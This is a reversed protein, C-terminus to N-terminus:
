TRNPNKAVLPVGETSKIFNAVKNNSDVLSTGPDYWVKGVKKIVTVKTGITLENALTVGATTEDVSFDAVFTIDGETSEWHNEVNHVTYPHKKLRQNGVFFTWNTRDTTFNTSSTHASVCKFTSSGYLVIEDVSYDTLESWNTIKYGGVFVEIDAPVTSVVNHTIKDKIPYMKPVYQLPVVNSTGDYVHTDIIFDDNYPITESIGIDIIMEGVTHVAPTGTGLTGRRLQGLVNGTITFFEIREGGVYIVGPLNKQKNGVNLVSSDTVTITSDYFNLDLALSTKRTNSLRKYHDRNLMDKFQMYGITQRVVNKTFTIVSFIDNETPTAALKISDKNATLYYDISHTLLNGNKIVWVYDDSLVDRGLDLSGGLIKNYEFYEVTDQTLSITPNIEVESRQIDLIDHNYYSILEIVEGDAPTTVFEIVNSAPVFYEATTIITIVLTAGDSYVSQNLRIAGALLDVTYDLMLRLKTGAVYVNFDDINFVATQFKHAPIVYTLENNSITYYTSNPGTFIHQDSKVIINAELPLADGINNTLTFSNTLGDGVITESAALSYSSDASSSILYNIIAGVAPASGFKIGVRDTAEYTEDTKFLIYSQTQGSVIVLSSADDVWPSRTIFEIDTGNGVFYDLDLIDQGNFGFSSVTVISGQTPITTLSVTKTDYNITFDLSNALITGDVTVTVAYQTNPYQGINFTDTTADGIYNNTVLRASGSASRHFVKVAVADTIQGPVVEEPAPSTTPTVFGDGDVLIDDAALGTASSYALNGGTLATDYDLSSPTISGDSTSKRFVVEDGTNIDLSPTNGLNPLTITDIIGDGVFTDMVATPPAVLRGNPQVTVGDYVSFYPDDIRVGNVYINIEQGAAPTYPLDYTYTSDGVTVIYDDFTPDFGDWVDTFWPLDDWGASSKFNLGVVNVGGYDVGTMLQSLDKGLQGSIPDYYYQIRDAASLYNFDKVYNIVLIEGAAPASTFTLLGSYSTHGRTTTAKSSVSFTDRLAEQGNIDTSNAKIVVKTKGTKLDPSWKLPFQLRSGTGVFEETVDLSTIYYKSSIRDFKIKVLASRVLDNKIFAVARAAVGTTSLGGNIEVTPASFYGTGSSVIEIKTVKGNSIYSKATAQSTNPGTIIIEPNSIYGSGGDVLVIESVYFSANDLWHKWPYTLLENDNIVIENTEGVTTVVPISKFGDAVPLLDFDTIMSQTNDVNSYSSVYERIKTRYPKVEAIYSEFDELNDNNYTVKQKLDGVHHMAKVFSTKFAWDIFTQESLAYRVSSFFLQLYTTRLEDILVKDKVATLIIRLETSGSNDFVNADYLPGDFGLNTSVFQYFKNSIQITGKERGIVKYSLTYDVSSVNAIKELLMWGASGVNKVKVTNGVDASLSYLQNTGDVSHDIKTFLNYGTAYWDAYNWFETVNYSQSKTRTWNSAVTNFAYISWRGLAQTDSNVLVSLARISLSTSSTYGEGSENVTVSRIGGNTDLVAKLVAGRGSGTVKIYPATTYGSGATNVVVETIRGDIIVPTLIPAIFSGTNVLRLEADTDIVLDYSGSILTPAAEFKEFDTLDTSDVILESILASNLREIYQKLAEVRNVFMGQRPRSQVGYKLKPPLNIDPVQRNSSDSGVLSDIWKSEITSPISTNPHESILKWDTHINLDDQDVLWYQAALVIDSNVLLNQVNVLSFSNTGTFEVFKHGQSKPDAILLAVDYASILRDSVNPVTTKNKVWFYYTNKFTKAVNDYRKKVSYNANGYLSTGSIGSTLGAETDALKDWEVPTYKSEVWEYVDISSTEYLTNWTSNRYVVNGTYSDLFKARKLNWWLTGVQQGLWAMGDDVNVTSTGISYTAPDYYTKYKIEQEAIGAIKGQMPDIIDLYTVLENTKKNYLFLKKIKTIDVKGIESQLISWSYRNRPRAYTHVLGSKVERDSALPASAVITNNTADFSYGYKENLSNDVALSEGYIFASDYVDYIDIRGADNNFDSIRTSGNDFTTKTTATSSPDNVYKLGINNTPDLVELQEATYLQESYSDFTYVTKSDGLASFVALTKGGNILKVKAGFKESTEPNRNKVVEQRQIYGTSDVDFIRVVGQDIKTDNALISGIALISGDPTISISEGFREPEDTWETALLTQDLEYLSTTYNYIYVAGVGLDATPATVVLTSGDETMDIDYAFNDGDVTFTEVEGELTWSGMNSFVLIRGQDIGYGSQVVAMRYGVSLKAIKIKSGFNQNNVGLADLIITIFQYEGNSNLKYMAVAGTGNNRDPAGIALWVSDPSFAMAKGFGTFPRYASPIVITQIKVWGTTGISKNFIEVEDNNSSVALTNALVDIVITRGFLLNETQIAASLTKRTFVPSNQWVTHNGAGDVGSWLLENTKLTRPLSTANDISDIRQSTFKYVLIQSSDAFPNEWGAISASINIMNLDVSTIVHFGTIVGANVIGIVDGASVSPISECDLSIISNVYEVSRVTFDALTYRYVNWSAGEFATWVYDGEELETIDKSLIDSLEDVNVTIQDYRVHGPTRLYPKYSKLEPWPNNNYGAPKLYLESPTQRIVFDVLTPDNTTTFEFAQPNTKFLSENLSIEIEDFADSGGYQGVRVAWEENFDISEQGEASLVDFLKNLSNASGKEPIMGQYFKYESVDNKIINELYQRKQYGVLHQAIRQQESDFNDSELDYFDTFQEAKYDWNPLLASTPKKSLRVWNNSNFVEVGPLFSNASYYFEKYKVIDGLNYDTWPQWDSIIAQDFIFGPIDFGGYWGVTRYGSVKIRDQKYGAELNYITDNFQTTNDIIVVHEKQVLYFGAGYIGVGTVRPSFSFENDERTYNLFNQDFKSGDSKLIEYENFQDRVDDIVAYNLKMSLGLASPSLAIISAGDQSLSALKNYLEPSFTNTTSHDIKSSFYDGNYKVIVGTKYIKNPLWDVFKDEGTSWNQTTWFMFEKVSTEWSVASRLNTNYDDFVFGQDKLFEGYGQLFDVVEQVSEYVTGYNVVTPTRDWQKRLSADRGGIIPLKALKQFLSADFNDQSTHNSAARYYANNYRVINGVVYQQGVTWEIYSESIGGVNIVVGTQTWPYYYFFPNNQNYGKVEYGIGTSTLIKTVIVGSYTLKKIPSSTNLFISYNEQPVFVGSNATPNKSDLILNFKEKSTFGGLRHSLQNTMTSLETKYESLSKLNDSLIYDVIYNVLGATLIRTSDSPISPLVLDELRLRLGTDKYVLQNTKSRVIRSRDLCTGLINNPQMLSVALVFSFPFFSSRRWASEVPSFDGFEFADSMQPRIDGQVINAALPDLLNGEGDVPPMIALTPRAFKINRSLPKGPERTIGDKLDNWLILNDSTYPLPGYVGQWWSPEITFGLSEWPCLHIRDTDFLHKYIGRWYGPLASGDPAVNKSYNYTFPNGNNYNMPKTFDGDVLTAWQYFSPALVKNFEELSYDTTRNYGPIFNFIDFISPDYTVKINNFIRKEIELILDDRYDNYAVVISGDHGQIVYQPTVLTTDLYKKPEFKPWIGFSTPTPPIFCGDTSEYEYTTLTDGAILNVNDSIVVFGTADFTYDKSYILQVGNIYINVAKNSLTDLSFAVSLPYTKIRPDVIEYSTTTAAGTGAMDSFYYPFTKPKDKNIELIIKDVTDKVDLDDSIHTAVSIFNRKFKGYEDRAQRLAKIINSNKSTLHYLGSNVSGSHQVFKTGYTSLFGQDRLNNNGPYTGSFTPLNDVISDVHDIVEGLTFNNINNNLPNNQFNIPLEYYGNSNKDQSSFCRLTVVDDITITISSDIVVKKYQAADVLSWKSKDIRKGNVYVRVELDALNGIDDYVDVPFNNTLGSSKFVRVVPQTNSLLNTIWGNVFTGEGLGTIVKLFAADTNQTIVDVGEKYSFTNQLLDFTFVIDGINNINRYTLAFGLSDDITGTGVKYSFITSGSFTSGPYAETDAISIGNSDFLDFLPKQNVATKQQSLKWASGNYWYMKSQNKEGSRIVVSEGYVPDIDSEEVLHIQRVAGTTSGTPIVSIFTVKFIKNNVLSDTDATFLIRQGQALDIGDINYGASGEITSFVDTTFTDILDVDAKSVYGFNFLKLNSEFEIIPRTARRSQDLDVPVGAAEASKSIVDQHFWRNYRSWPNGDSHARNITIYDKSSAFATADGFPMSDFGTDDFLVQTSESYAAIIELDSEPVLKIKEGVGDVYFAGTAYTTPIVNGSFSLKMGNSLEVGSSLTYAKKGIIEADVDITSNEDIDFIQWAGGTDPSNESVYYLVDPADVPVTFTVTGSEVASLDVGDQYRFLEGASRQTKISFPEGPSTIEFKYTQGRYLKLTPNRTLGDPTFLYARNDGEDSITVTYTSIVNQQQGFVKIVSPGYPMWYYQQFNVFKDWNIHPNWSYFEQKNLKQHNKSIGGLVDVTNIYDIYDKFFTVNGLTDKVVAAPELQYHQRDITAAEIFVDNATVAKANQRGIFGNLKKVTGSQTLQDITAQIFKKNPETRYFRPLLRATRRKEGKGIPLGYENQQEAM